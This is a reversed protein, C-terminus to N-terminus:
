QWPSPAGSDIKYRTKIEEIDETLTEIPKKGEKVAKLNEGIEWIIAKLEEQTNDM